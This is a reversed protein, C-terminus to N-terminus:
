RKVVVPTGLPLRKALRRIVKNSVRICGRSVNKGLGSNDVTGHLGLQGNGGNFDTIVDSFGSLSFAYAGYLGDPSPPKILETLYYRGEPTPTASQGLGVKAREVVRDGQRVTIRHRGLDIKVRYNTRSLSVDRRRVWGSSGNPREPLQVKLWGEREREIMFTLPGKQGPRKGVLRTGRRARPRPHVRVKGRMATAIGSLDEPDVGSAGGSWLNAVERTADAADGSIQQPTGGAGASLSTRSVQESVLTQVVLGVGAAPVVAALVALLGTLRRTRRPRPKAEPAPPEPSAPSLQPPM